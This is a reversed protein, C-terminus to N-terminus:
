QCQTRARMLAPKIIHSPAANNKSLYYKKDKYLLGLKNQVGALSMHLDDSSLLLPIESSRSIRQQLNSESLESYSGTQLQRNGPITTLAGASEQGYHAILHYIDHESLSAKRALAERIM